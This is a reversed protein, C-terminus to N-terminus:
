VDEALFFDSEEFSPTVVCAVLCYDGSNVVTRQWKESAVVHSLKENMIDSGIIIEEYDYMAATDSVQMKLSGGAQWFWIEDNNLMHLKSEEGKKLLYYIYSACKHDSTFRAPLDKADVESRYMIRFWGGERQLPKLDLYEIVEDGTYKM